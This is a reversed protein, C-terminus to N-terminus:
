TSGFTRSVLSPRLHRGAYGTELIWGVALCPRGLAESRCSAILEALSAPLCRPRRAKPLMTEGDHM